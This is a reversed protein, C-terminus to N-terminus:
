KNINKSIVIFDKGMFRDIVYAVAGVVGMSAVIPWLGTLVLSILMGKSKSIEFFRLPVKYSSVFLHIPIFTIMCGMLYTKILSHQSNWFTLTTSIINGFM